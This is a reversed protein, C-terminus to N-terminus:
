KLKRAKASAAVVVGAGTEKIFDDLRGYTVHLIADRKAKDPMGGSYVGFTMGQRKHGVILQITSVPVGAGELQTIVTGRLAHFDLAPDAIGLKRIIRGFRKGVYWARKHDPGGRLLGPILYDDASTKALQKVLPAIAPHIPVRRVAAATKGEEIRLVKGDVASVQLEGVEERRMGTYAAIVTLSWLPDSPPVGHLVKSLESPLWPRRAPAKGRTSTKVTGSMRDFPNAEVIGRAAIWDFFSRLDSVEKKRTTPSLPTVVGARKQTRKQIVQSVYSGAITRTVESPERESGFWNQFAALRRRKDGVTQATLHEAVEELYREVHRGLSRQLQGSLTRSARQLIAHAEPPLPPYGESDRGLREAQQDLYRDMAADLGAEAEEPDREGADIAEREEIAIQLLREPTERVPRKPPPADQAAAQAFLAHWEALVAHKRRNAEALDQTQLSRTLVKAGVTEQIDRPVTLQVYWGLRRRKLYSPARSM